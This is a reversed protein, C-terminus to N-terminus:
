MTPSVGTTQCNGNVCFKAPAVCDAVSSCSALCSMGASADCVLNGACLASATACNGAGDCTRTTLTAGACGPAGCATASNPYVCAGSVDCATAGCSASSASCGASCCFGGLCANSACDGDLACSAGSHGWGSLPSPVSGSARNGWCAISGNSSIACSSTPGSALSTASTLNSVTVPSSATTTARDGLQGRSDDGLCLVRGDGPLACTFDPGGGLAVATARDFDVLVPTSATAQATAGSRMVKGWCEVFADGAAIACSADAGVGIAVAGSVGSVIVPTLANTTTGNGLQGSTNLGWCAVQGNEFLACTHTATPSTAIAVASAPLLARVPVTPTTKKGGNGLQGDLNSGWCWVSGDSELACVHEAASAVELVGTLGPVAALTGFKSDSCQVTGDGLVACDSAGGLSIGRAGTLGDIPSPVGVGGAATSPWCHVTGNFLLACSVSTGVDVQVAELDCSARNCFYHAPCDSDAVCSGAVTALGAGGATPDSIVAVGGDAGNNVGNCVFATQQIVVGGDGPVVVDIREGGLRCDAGPPELSVQVQSGTTGPSGAPGAAGADGPGGNCVLSTSTVEGSGLQGDGNQDLGSAIETGGYLCSSGPPVQTQVALTVAGAGGMAGPAGNAGPAGVNGTTGPAGMAGAPGTPGQPLPVVTWQGSACALLTQSASAYAVAGASISLCPIPVWASALCSYLSTPSQVYATTGALSSSCKPLGGLTLAEVTVAYVDGDPKAVTAASSPASGHCAALSTVALIGTLGRLYVGTKASREREVM